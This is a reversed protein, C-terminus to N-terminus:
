GCPKVSAATNCRHQSLRHEVELEQHAASGGRFSHPRFPRRQAFPRPHRRGVGKRGQASIISYLVITQTFPALRRKLQIVDGTM